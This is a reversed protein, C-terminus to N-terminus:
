DRYKNLEKNASAEYRGRVDKRMEDDGVIAGGIPVIAGGVSSPATLVANLAHYLYPSHTASTQARRNFRYALESLPGDVFPNLLYNATNNDQNYKTALTLYDLAKLKAMQEIDYPGAEEAQKKTSKPIKNLYGKAKNRLGKQKEEGGAVMPGVIGALAGLSSGIGAGLDRNKKKSFTGGTAHGIGAGIGAGVGAGLLPALATLVPYEDFTANHRRALRYISERMPGSVYPNLLYHALQKDRNRSSAAVMEDYALQQMGRDLNFPGISEEAAKKGLEFALKTIQSMPHEKQYNM